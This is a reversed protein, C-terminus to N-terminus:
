PPTTSVRVRGTIPTMIVYLMSGGSTRFGVTGGGEPAGTETFAIRFNAFSTAVYSIGFPLPRTQTIGNRNRVLWNLTITGDATQQGQANIRINWDSGPNTIAQQQIFRIDHHLQYATTRLQLDEIFGNMRPMSIAALTSMISLVIIIEIYTFGQTSYYRRCLPRGSTGFLFKTAMCM